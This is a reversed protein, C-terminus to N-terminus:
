FANARLLLNFILWSNYDDKEMRHHDLKIKFDRPRYRNAGEAVRAEGENSHHGM